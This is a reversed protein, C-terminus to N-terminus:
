LEIPGYTEEFLGRPWVEFSRNTGLVVAEDGNKLGVKKRFKAPCLIKGSKIECDEEEMFVTRQSEREEPNNEDLGDYKGAIKSSVMVPYVLLYNKEQVSVTVETEEGYNKEMVKRIKAPVNFRGKHDLTILHKGRFRYMIKEPVSDSVAM